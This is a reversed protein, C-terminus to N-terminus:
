LVKLLLFHNTTFSVITAIDVASPSPAIDIILTDPSSAIFITLLTDIISIDSSGISTGMCVIIFLAIISLIIKKNNNMYM